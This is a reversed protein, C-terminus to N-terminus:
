EATIFAPPGACTADAPSLGAVTTERHLNGAVLSRLPNAGLGRVQETFESIVKAFRAGEAASIWELRLRRPEIGLLKILSRATDV